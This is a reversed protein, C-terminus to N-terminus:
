DDPDYDDPEPGDRPGNYDPRSKIEREVADWDITSSQEDRDLPGDWYEPESNGPVTEHPAFPTARFQWSEANCLEATRRVAPMNRRDLEARPVPELVQIHMFGKEGCETCPTDGLHDRADELDWIIGRRRDGCNACLFNVLTAYAPEDPPPEVDDRPVNYNPRSEVERALRGCHRDWGQCQIASPCPEDAVQDYDCEACRYNVPTGHTDNVM